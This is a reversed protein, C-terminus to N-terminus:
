YLITSFLILALWTFFLLGIIGIVLSSIGLRKFYRKKKTSNEKNSSFSMKTTENETHSLNDIKTAIVSDETQKNSIKDLVNGKRVIFFMSFIAISLALSISVISTIKIKTDENIGPYLKKPNYPNSIDLLFFMRDKNDSDKLLCAYNQHLVLYKFNGYDKDYYYESIEKPDQINSIDIIALGTMKVIYLKNNSATLDHYFFKFNIDMKSIKTVLNFNELDFVWLGNDEDIVFLYDDNIAMESTSNKFYIECIKIPKSKNALDIVQVKFQYQNEYLGFYQKQTMLYLFNDQVILNNFHSEGDSYQGIMQPNQVSNCDYILVTSLSIETDVLGHVIQYVYDNNVSFGSDINYYSAVYKSINPTISGVESIRGNNSINFIKLGVKSVSDTMSAFLNNNNAVIYSIELNNDGEIEYQEQISPKKPNSLDLTQIINSYFRYLYGKASVLNKFCIHIGINTTFVDEFPQQNNKVRLHVDQYNFTRFDSRIGKVSQYNMYNISTIFSSSLFILGLGVFGILFGMKKLTLEEVYM